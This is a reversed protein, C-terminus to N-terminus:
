RKGEKPKRRKAKEHDAIAQRIQAIRVRTPNAEPGAYKPAAFHNLRAVVGRHVCELNEPACNAPDGDLQLVVHGKPVPGNEQEWVWVAKRIWHTERNMGRRRHSAWPAPGPVKIELAPTKKDGEGIHQWRESWLPKVNAPVDGTKFRTAKGAKALVEGNGGCRPDGPRIRGDVPSPGFKRNKAAAAIQRVTFSTGFRYNMMRTTLAGGYRPWWARLCKVQEANFMVRGKPM